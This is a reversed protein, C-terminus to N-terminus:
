ESFFLESDEYYKAHFNMYVNMISIDTPDIKLDGNLDFDPNYLLDGYESIKSLLFLIDAVEVSFNGTADGPILERHTLLLIETNANIKVFRTVYGGKSLVLIYEGQKVESFKYLGISTKPKEGEQLPIITRENGTYGIAAKNIPFGPNSLSGLYGPYNPTNPMFETGDYYKATDTYLPQSALIANAGQSLLSIDYLRAVVPFLKTLEPDEYYIFPFVTGSVLATPCPVMIMTPSMVTVPFPCTANTTMECSIRDGVVPFYTYKYNTEGEINAGNKKWQYTPADGGNTPNAVFTVREGQCFEVDITEYEITLLNSSPETVSVFPKNVSSLTILISSNSASATLATTSFSVGNTGVPITVSTPMPTFAAIDGFYTLNITVDEAATVNDPFKVTYTKTEGQYIRTPTNDTLSVTTPVTLIAPAGLPFVETMNTISSAQITWQGAQTINIPIAISAKGFPTVEAGTIQYFENGAECTEEGNIFGSTTCNSESIQLGPFDVRFGVNYLPISSFSTYHLDLYTIEGVNAAYQQEENWLYNVEGDLSTTFTLGTKIKTIEGAPINDYGVGQSNDDSNAGTGVGSANAYPGFRFKYTANDYDDSGTGTSITGPKLQLINYSYGNQYPSASYARDFDRGIPFYAIIADGSKGNKAGVLRLSQVEATTLFRNEKSENNNLGYIDPVIFAFGADASALFTDFGYAFSIPTGLPIHTADIIAEKVFYEPTNTDYTITITVSFTNGAYLATFRKTMEHHTGLTVATGIDEIVDFKALSASNLATGSKGIAGTSSYIQNGIKISFLPTSTQDFFQQVWTTGAYRTVCFAGPTNGTGGTAGFVEIKLQDNALKGGLTIKNNTQAYLTTSLCCASLVIALILFIRKM